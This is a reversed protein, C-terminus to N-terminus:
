TKRSAESRERVPKAASQGIWKNKVNVNIETNYCLIVNYDLPELSTGAILSTVQM